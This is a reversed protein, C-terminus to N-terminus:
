LTADVKSFVATNRAFANADQKNWTGALADLDDFTKLASSSVAGGAGQGQLLRLVLSILSSGENAAQRKLLALARDDLRRISMNAM